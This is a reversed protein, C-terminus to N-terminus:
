KAAPLVRDSATHKVAPEEEEHTPAPFNANKTERPDPQGHAVSLLNPV